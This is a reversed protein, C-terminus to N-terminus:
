YYYFPSVGLESQHVYRVGPCLERSCAFTSFSRITYNGGELRSAEWTQWIFLFLVMQFNSAKLRSSSTAHISFFSAPASISPLLFVYSSSFMLFSRCLPMHDHFSLRGAHNITVRKNWSKTMVNHLLIKISYEHNIFMKFMKLAIFFIFFLLSSMMSFLFMSQCPLTSRTFLIRLHRYFCSFLFNLFFHSSISYSLQFFLSVEVAAM